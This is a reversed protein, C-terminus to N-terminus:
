ENSGHLIYVQRGGDEDVSTGRVGEICMFAM